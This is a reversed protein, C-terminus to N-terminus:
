DLAITRGLKTELNDLQKNLNATVFHETHAVAELFDPVENTPIAMTSLHRVVLRDPEDKVALTLRVLDSGGTHAAVTNRLGILRRHVDFGEDTGAYVKKADLKPVGDGSTGYCRGYAMVGAIFFAQVRLSNNIDGVAAVDDRVWEFNSRASVINMLLHTWQSLREFGPPDLVFGDAVVGKMHHQYDEEIKNMDRHASM